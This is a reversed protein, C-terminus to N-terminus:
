ELWGVLYANATADDGSALNLYLDFRQSGDLPLIVTCINDGQTSAGIDQATAIGIASVATAGASSGTNRGYVLLRATGTTNEIAELYLKLIVATASSPLSDLATWINTAGSGTPGVSEWAAGINTYIDFSTANAGPDADFQTFMASTYGSVSTVAITTNIASVSASLTTVRADLNSLSASVNNLYAGLTRDLDNVKTLAAASASVAGGIMPFSNKLGIKINRIHNDGEAKADGGDPLTIDLSTIYSVSEVTM